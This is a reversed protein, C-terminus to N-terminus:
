SMDKWTEPWLHRAQIDNAEKDTAGRVMHMWGTTKEDLITFRTFSAWTDSLDRDGDVNWYDDISKELMVYLSTSTARTVDLINWHFQSYHKERCTCNSERNLTIVTFTTGEFPGRAEGHDPSSDQFPTSSSRRIRRSSKRTRRGRDPSDGILTSTRLVQDRGSLKVTGDAIPFIIRKVMKPRECKRQMSVKQMSKLHTWRKGIGWHRGGNGSGRRTCVCPRPIYRTLSEQRVSATAVPRQCFYPSIRGNCWISLNGMCLVSDSFVHTKATSLQVAKDTLSTTRQWTQQWNIM